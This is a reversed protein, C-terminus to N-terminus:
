EAGFEWVPGTVAPRDAMIERQTSTFTRPHLYLPVLEDRQQWFPEFRAQDLHGIGDTLDTSSNILV